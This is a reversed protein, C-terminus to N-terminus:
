NNDECQDCDLTHPKCTGSLCGAECEVKSEYWQRNTPSVTCMAGTELPQTCPAFDKCKDDCVDKQMCAACTCKSAQPQFCARECAYVQDVHALRQSHAEIEPDHGGASYHLLEHFLTSKQEWDAGTGLTGMDVYLDLVGPNSTDVAAVYSQGSVCRYIRSRRVFDHLLKDSLGQQGLKDLCRTGEIVADSLLDSIRQKQADSCTDARVSGAAIAVHEAHAAAGEAGAATEVSTFARKAHIRPADYTAATVWAGSRAQEEVVVRSMTTSLPTTTTRRQPKNTQYYPKEVVVSKMGGSVSSYEFTFDSGADGGRTEGTVQSGQRTWTDVALNDRFLGEIRFDITPDDSTMRQYRVCGGPSLKVDLTLIGNAHWTKDAAIAAFAAALSEPTVLDTEPNTCTYSPQEDDPPDNPDEPDNPDNPDNPDEPGTESGCGMIGMTLAGLLGGGVMKVISRRRWGGAAGITLRDFPQTGEIEKM